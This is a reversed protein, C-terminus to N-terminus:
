RLLLRRGGPQPYGDTPRRIFDGRATLPATLTSTVARHIQDASILLRLFAASTRRPLRRARRQPSSANTPFGALLGRTNGLNENKIPWSKLPWKDMLLEPGDYAEMLMWERSLLINGAWKHGQYWGSIRYIKLFVEEMSELTQSAHLTYYFSILFPHSLM